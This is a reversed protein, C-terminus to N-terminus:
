SARRANESIADAITGWAGRPLDHGMGEIEVMKADPVTDAMKRGNEVPVLPDDTGHIVVTPMTLKSLAAKRGSSAQVALMQRRRGDPRHCRDYCRTALDRAADEDFPFGPGSIMRRHRVDQEIAAEREMEPPEAFISVADSNTSLVPDDGMASMISAVSRIRDGHEIALVQAIMGGMSMGAVHAREIGLEDLVGVTDAAMDLVTYPPKADVDDFKKSLGVDRNDHTIVRFGADLLLQKFGDPWRIMQSGLGNLLVLAPADDPGDAEYCIEVGRVNAIPM